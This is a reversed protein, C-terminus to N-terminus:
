EKILLISINHVNEWIMEMKSVFQLLFKARIEAVLPKSAVVFWIDCSFRKLANLTSSYNSYNCNQEFNINIFIYLKWPLCWPPTGDFLLCFLTVGRIEICLTCTVPFINTSEMFWNEGPAFANILTETRSVFYWFINFKTLLLLFYRERETNGGQCHFSLICFDITRYGNGILDYM